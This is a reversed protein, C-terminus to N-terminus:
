GIWSGVVQHAADLYHQGVLAAVSFNQLLLQGDGLAGGTVAVADAVGDGDSDADAFVLGVTSGKGHASLWSSLSAATDAGAYGLAITDDNRLDTIVARGGAGIVFIDPGNDGTLRDSGAGGFLVDGGNGGYLSDSGAGGMLVDDGNDGVLVDAGDAGCLVDNGNGGYYTSDHGATDTFTDAKNSGNIVQNDGAEHVAVNVTVPASFGGQGDAVRYTFSDAVGQGAALLDFSDADAVYLVKGHDVSISAGLASHAGILLIALADGDVDSDNALVDITVAADEAVSASDGQAVPADNVAAVGIQVTVAASVGGLGDSAVYSFSDAGNYNAAALYDFSGDAHLVLDGHAPGNVLSASLADHNRDTDNALVGHAADVVLAVDESAGYASDAVAVPAANLFVRTLVADHDSPRTGYEQNTNLHVNDFVANAAMNPSLFLNDIQENQGEFASSYRDSAPLTWAMNVLEGGAELQSQATEFPYGNFDGAVVIHADPNALVLKHVYDQVASTQDTRRADGSNIAPQDKGFLEDSGLRSYDHVGVYTITEGHFVFDATLPKRSNVFSDGNAPSIDNLLKVSGAVYDVRAPNYLIATRINGNPEGGNTNETLPDIVVWAYQPGGAAVISAVLKNLTVTADLVGTGTGNSDQIEEVGLVDPAALGTAIDQGLADWKAQPDSPDLNELNYAAVTLNATDGHLSTTELAITTHAVVAPAVTPILEYNGGFYHLVGTVNGLQDGPIFYGTNGANVGTDAYIEIREPNADGLARTVAGRDNANSATAGGEPLIWTASQYTTALVEANNVQVLMGELSEYFDVADHAPNFVSFHDSDITETPANRGGIGIITPAIANGSSLITLGQVNTIETTPLNNVNTGVYEEVLGQLDVLDGIHVASSGSTSFVFVGDSTADNGDGAQDQIWFGKSGNSDIATVVGRTNVLSGAYPSSHSAGQIEYIHTLPAITSFDVPNDGTGAYANGALDRVAGADVSVHYTTGLHLDAAPNILLNQGAVTVQSADGIAITRTDGAGDTIVINGSGAAILENFNLTLNAGTAIGFAGDAPTAGTLLPASTDAAMANSKVSINDIGIWEDNGVADTTLIRLQVQSQNNLAAPLDFSLQILSTAQSPGTTADPVYGAPINTWNGSEGLRYQVAVPQVANDATGDVDRLDVSFHLDQRGSADLYLALYPARATGSGQLGVVANALEFESVGGTTSTTLFQANVDVVTSDGLVTQPNVGTASALGDGRYGVISPVGSWDDNTSIQNKDTWDQFFNSVGLKYYATSM